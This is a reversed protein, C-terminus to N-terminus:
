QDKNKQAYFKQDMQDKLKKKSMYDLESSMSTNFENESM